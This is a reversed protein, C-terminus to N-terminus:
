GAPPAIEAGDDFDRREIRLAGRWEPEDFLLRAMEQGAEVPTEFTALPGAESHVLAFLTQM